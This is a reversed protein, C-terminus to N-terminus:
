EPAPGLRGEPFRRWGAMLYVTNPSERASEADRAADGHKLAIDVFAQRIIRVPSEIVHDEALGKCSVRCGRVTSRSISRTPRRAISANGLKPCQCTRRDM